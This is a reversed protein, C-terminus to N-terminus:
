FSKSPCGQCAVAVHLAYVSCLEGVEKEPALAIIEESAPKPCEDNTPDYTFLPSGYGYLEANVNFGNEVLHRVCEPSYTTIADVLEQTSM